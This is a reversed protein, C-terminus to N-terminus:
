CKEMSPSPFKSPLETGQTLAAQDLTPSGQVGVGTAPLLVYQGGIARLHATVSAFMFDMLVRVSAAMKFELSVDGRCSTEQARRLLDGRAKCAVGFQSLVPALRM